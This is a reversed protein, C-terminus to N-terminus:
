AAESAFSGQLSIVVERQRTRDGRFFRLKLRGPASEAIADALDAAM